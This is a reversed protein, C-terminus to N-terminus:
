KKTHTSVIYGDNELMPISLLNAINMENLWVNFEVYWGQTSTSTTGTNYSDTIKAKGKQVRALLKECVLHPLYHLQQPIDKVPVIYDPVM